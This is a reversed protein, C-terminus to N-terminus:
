RTYIITHVRNRRPPRVHRRASKQQSEQHKAGLTEIGFCHGIDEYGKSEVKQTLAKPFKHMQKPGFMTWLFHLMGGKYHMPAFQNTRSNMFFKPGGKVKMLAENTKANMYVSGVVSDPNASLAHKGRLFYCCGNKAEDDKGDIACELFAIIASSFCPNTTAIVPGLNIREPEFITFNEDFTYGYIQDSEVMCDVLLTDHSSFKISGSDLVIKNPEISTARGMRVVNQISRIATLDNSDIVASKCVEPYSRRPDLRVLLGKAELTLFGKKVSKASVMKQGFSNMMKHCDKMSERLWYWVDRSIVWTIKSPHINQEVLLNTIADVGTKGNGFVIYNSYKGSKVSSPVDNPPVFSASEDVPILPERMSPVTVGSTVTVLKGCNVTFRHSTTSTNSMVVITHKSRTEDFKYTADFFCRVRGSAEFTDRVTQYYELLEAGTARDNVDYIENGKRNLHKGLTLSNVGYWCSPQHLKVFPYAKTWHGGPQSNQDVIVVTASPHETLITDVFSMGAAGAGVVLYDCQLTETTTATKTTAILM